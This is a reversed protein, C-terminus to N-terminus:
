SVASFGALAYPFKTTNLYRVFDDTAADINEIFRNHIVQTRGAKWVHEQPNEEPAYKPFPLVHIRADKQLFAQVVSGLHWRASDWCLLIQQTPYRRRIKQLIRRTEHMTQRETKWAHERGTKVDLFGYVSRNARHNSVDVTPYEGARLWVKQTTTRTSLLMEDATLIVTNPNKWAKTLVPLTTTRWARVAREDREHYVTGPTHYTFKAERFLLYYSTKSQYRVGYTREIWDGLIGTTWFASDYRRDCEKPKKASVTAIIGARETKTLLAKPRGQRKDALATVGKQLYSRRLAFAHGRSFGTVATITIAPTGGDLLLVAQARRVEPGKTKSKTLLQNLETRQGGTLTPTHM